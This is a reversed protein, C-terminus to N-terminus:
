RCRRWRDRACKDNWGHGGTGGTVTLARQRIRKLNVTVNQSQFKSSLSKFKEEGAASWASWDSSLPPAKLRVLLSEGDDGGEYDGVNDDDNDDGDDGDDDDDDGAVLLITMRQSSQMILLSITASKDRGHWNNTRCVLLIQRPLKEFKGATKFNAFTFVISETTAAQEQNIEM